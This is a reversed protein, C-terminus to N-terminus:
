DNGDQNNDDDGDDPIAAAIQAVTMGQLKEPCDYGTSKLLDSLLMTEPITASM